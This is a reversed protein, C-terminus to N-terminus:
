ILSLHVISPRGNLKFFSSANNMNDKKAELNRYDCGEFNAEANPLKLPKEWDTTERIYTPLNNGLLFQRLLM